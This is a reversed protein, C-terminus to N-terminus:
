RGLTRKLEFVKRRLVTAIKDTWPQSLDVERLEEEIPPRVSADQEPTLCFRSLKKGVYDPLWSLNCTVMRVYCGSALHKAYIAGDLSQWLRKVSIRGSILHPSAEFDADYALADDFFEGELPQAAHFTQVNEQRRFEGFADMETFALGAQQKMRERQSELYDRDGFLSLICKTYRKVLKRSGVFGNLCCDRCQTTTECAAFRKGRPSLPALILTDSDFIWFRDIRKRQLFEAILFWRRFVFRLWKETGGPKNFKHRTGEIPEFVADFCATDDSNLDACDIFAVGDKGFRRNDQDGLLFVEKNPNARVACHLSRALYDAAGYHIFVIPAQTPM